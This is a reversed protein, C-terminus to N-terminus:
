VNHRKGGIYVAAVLPREDAEYPEQWEGYYWPSDSSAAASVHRVEPELAATFDGEYGTVLVMTEDPFQALANILARVTMPAAEVPSPDDPLKEDPM